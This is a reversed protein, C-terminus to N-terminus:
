ASAAALRNVLGASSGNPFIGSNLNQATLASRMSIRVAASHAFARVQNIAGRRSAKGRSPGHCRFIGSGANSSIPHRRSGWVCHKETISAPFATSPNFTAIKLAGLRTVARRVSSASWGAPHQVANLYGPSNERWRTGRWMPVAIPRYCQNEGRLRPRLKRNRTVPHTRM